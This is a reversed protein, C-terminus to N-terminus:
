FALGAATDGLFKAFTRISNMKDERLGRLDEESIRKECSLRGLVDILRSSRFDYRHDIEKRHQTLYHELDWLDTSQQIEGAMQKARQIVEHLERGLAADFAIRAIAKESRSCTPVNQYPNHAQNTSPSIM